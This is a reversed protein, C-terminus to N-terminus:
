ERVYRLGVLPDGASLGHQLRLPGAGAFEGSFRHNQYYGSEFAVQLGNRTWTGFDAWAFRFRQQTPAGGAPGHWESYRIWHEYRGSPLLRIGASDVLFHVSVTDGDVVAPDFVYIPAPLPADQVASARWAGAPSASPATQRLTSRMVGDVASARLDARLSDAVLARIAFREGHVDSTFRYRDGDVVWAGADQEAFRGDFRGDRLRQMWLRQQWRGSADVELQASDLYTQLLQGGVLRHAVLAPLPQGDAQHVRWTATALPPLPTLDPATPRDSSCAQLAAILALPRLARRLPAVPVFSNPHRFM